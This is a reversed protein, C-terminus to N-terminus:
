QERRFLKDWLRHLKSTFCHHNKGRMIFFSISDRLAMNQRKLHEVQLQLRHITVKKEFNRRVLEAQQWLNEEMLKAVQFKFEPWDDHLMPQSIIKMIVADDMINDDTQIPGLDQM